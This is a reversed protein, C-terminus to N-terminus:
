VMDLYDIDQRDKLLEKLEAIEEQAQKLMLKLRQIEEYQQILRKNGEIVVSSLHAKTAM